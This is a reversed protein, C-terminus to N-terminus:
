IGLQRAACPTACHVLTVLHLAAHIGASADEKAGAAVSESKFDRVPTRMELAVLHREDAGQQHLLLIVLQVQLDKLLCLLM